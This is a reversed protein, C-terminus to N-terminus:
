SNISHFSNRFIMLASALEIFETLEYANFFTLNHFLLCKYCRRCHGDDGNDRENGANDDRMSVELFVPVIFFCDNYRVIMVSTAAMVNGDQLL